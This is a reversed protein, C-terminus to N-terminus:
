KWWMVGWGLWHWGAGWRRLPWSPGVRPKFRDSLSCSRMSWSMGSASPISMKLMMKSWWGSHYKGSGMSSSCRPVMVAPPSINVMMGPLSWAGPASKVVTGWFNELIICNRPFNELPRSTMSSFYFRFVIWIFMLLFRWSGDHWNFSSEVQFILYAFIWLFLIFNWSKNTKWSKSSPPLWCYMKERIAERHWTVWKIHYKILFQCQYQPWLTLCNEWHTVFNWFFNAFNPKTILLKAWLFSPNGFKWALLM